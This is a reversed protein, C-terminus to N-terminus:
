RGFLGLIDDASLSKLATGDERILADAPARKADQLRLMKDEITGRALHPDVRHDGGGGGGDDGVGLKGGFVPVVERGEFRETQSDGALDCVRRLAAADRM